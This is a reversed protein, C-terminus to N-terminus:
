VLKICPSKGKLKLDDNIIEESDKFFLEFERYTDSSVIFGKEKKLIEVIQYLNASNLTHIAWNLMEENKLLYNIVVDCKNCGDIEPFTHWQRLLSFEGNDFLPAMRNEYPGIIEAFNRSFRDANGYIRDAFLTQLYFMEFKKEKAIKLGKSIDCASYPAFPNKLIEKNSLFYNSLLYDKGNLTAIDQEAYPIQVMKLFYMIILEYEILYIPIDKLIIKSGNNLIISFMKSRGIFTSSTSKNLGKKTNAKIFPIEDLLIRGNSLRTINNPLPNYSTGNFTFTKIFQDFLNYSNSYIPSNEDYSNYNKLIKKITDLKEM